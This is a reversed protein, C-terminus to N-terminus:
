VGVTVALFLIISPVSIMMMMVQHSLGLVLADPESFVASAPVHAGAPVNKQPLEVLVLLWWCQHCSWDVAEFASLSLLFSYLQLSLLNIHMNLPVPM